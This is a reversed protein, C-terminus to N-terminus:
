FPTDDTFVIDTKPAPNYNSSNLNTPKDPNKIHSLYMNLIISDIDLNEMTYVLSTLDNVTLLVHHDEHNFKMKIGEIREDDQVIVVPALEIADIRGIRFTRRVKQAVEENLELRKGTYTYLDPIKMSTQITKLEEVMIPYHYKNLLLSDGPSWNNKVPTGNDGFEKERLIMLVTQPNFNWSVYNSGNFQSKWVTKEDISLKVEIKLKNLIMWPSYRIITKM